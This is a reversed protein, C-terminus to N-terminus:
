DIRSGVRPLYYILLTLHFTRSTTDISIFVPPFFPIHTMLQKELLRFSLM